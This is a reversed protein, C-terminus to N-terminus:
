YPRTPESIHILSLGRLARARIRKIGPLSRLVREIPLIIHEQVDEPSGGRYTMKIDVEGYDQSPNVELPVKNLAMYIGGLLIAVLLFNSAIDNKTFWRIM